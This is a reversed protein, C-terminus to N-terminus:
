PELIIKGFQQRNELRKHARRAEKLPMVRDIVPKIKRSDAARLVSEFTSPTGLYTGYISLQKSFLFRLNVDVVPGSTAGCTVLRGKGALSALSKEWVAPGVHEIVIDVGRGKTHKKVVKAFDQRKYNIGVHAGLELGKAVKSKTGATTIIKLGALAAIQIAAAGIGSGAAHILVTEGPQAKAKVMLMDWATIYTVPLASAEQFTLSIPKPYVIDAPVKVFEAYGGHVSAGLVKVSEPTNYNETKCRKYRGSYIGPFLVVHDGAKIHDVATGVDAVVGCVDTGLIHPLPTQYAPIGNRIWIDLHNLACARVEVLVDTTGLLPTNINRFKLVEPGGHQDFIVAKM